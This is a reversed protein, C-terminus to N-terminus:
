APGAPPRAANPWVYVWGYSKVMDCTPTGITAGGCHGAHGPHECYCKSGGNPASFPRVALDGCRWQFKLGDEFRLPDMEHFRYGSWETGNQSHKDHTYGSVPMHFQGANFYWAAMGPEFAISANVEGDVYYRVTLAGECETNCTSWFHNMVGTHGATIKHAFLTKEILSFSGGSLGTGFTMAAASTNDGDYCPKTGGEEYWCVDSMGTPTNGAHQPVAGALAAVGLLRLAMM